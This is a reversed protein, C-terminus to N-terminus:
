TVGLHIMGGLSRLAYNERPCRTQWIDLTQLRSRKQPDLSLFFPLWYSKNPAGPAWPYGSPLQGALLCNSFVHLFGTKRILVKRRVLFLLATNGNIRSVYLFRLHAGEGPPIKGFEEGQFGWREQM